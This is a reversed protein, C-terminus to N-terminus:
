QGSIQHDKASSEAKPEIDTTRRLKRVPRQEIVLETREDRYLVLTQQDQISLQFTVYMNRDSFNITQLHKGDNSYASIQMYTGMHQIADKLPNFADRNMIPDIM